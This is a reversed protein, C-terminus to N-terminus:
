LLDEPKPIPDYTFGKIINPTKSERQKEVRNQEQESKILKLVYHRFAKYGFSIKGEDTLTEWVAKMSWGADLAEKIDNKLSIFVTKASSRKTKKEAQNISVRESLPKKM